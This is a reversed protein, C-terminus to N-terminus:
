LCKGKELPPIQIKDRHKKSKLLADTSLGIFVHVGMSAARKLLNRHGDHLHDFTGGLCVRKFPKEIMITKLM